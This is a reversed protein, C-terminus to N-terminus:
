AIRYFCRLLDTLAKQDESGMLERASHMALLPVGVDIVLMPLLTSAISGLTSGSTGDSRNVFKKYPIREKLLMQEIIAIGESDTAYSQGAAEKVSVGSNLSAKNVPDYKGAQNPHLGHGVDASLLIGGAVASQFDMHSKGLADYLKELVFSLLLSGAGQKTRSGVEEHDFFAGVNVGDERETELLGTMVAQVSTMNDLRPASIFDQEIGLFCGQEACYVSLEFDLIDSPEAKLEKALFDLFYTSKKGNKGDSEQNLEKELMGAIPIMDTQKNLEIGKNIEKNLHIAINPITLIPRKIDVLRLTPKMVEDSKLAIRGAVSLPRDLWTNLIAGGYIEVNVRAYGEEKMDPNAKVRLCPFDTHAAAVRLQGKVPDGGGIQFAVLSSGHHRVFYNGGKKLKWNENLSVETYGAKELRLRVAEVAHFPSVAEGILTLLERAEKTKNEQNMNNEKGRSGNKNKAYFEQM